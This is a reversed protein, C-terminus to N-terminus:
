INKQNRSSHKKQAKQSQTDFKRLQEISKKQAADFKTTDLGLEIFLSDIVTAM